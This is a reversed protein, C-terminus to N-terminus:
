KISPSEEASVLAVEVDDLFFRTQSVWPPVIQVAQFNLNGPNHNYDTEGQETSGDPWTVRMKAPLGASAQTPIFVEIKHWQGVVCKKSCKWDPRTRRDKSMWLPALKFWGATVDWYLARTANTRLETGFNANDTDPCFWYSFRIYDCAELKAKTEPDKAAYLVAYTFAMQGAKTGDIHCYSKEGGHAKVNTVYRYHDGNCWWRPYGIDGLPRDEFGNFSLVTAAVLLANGITIAM